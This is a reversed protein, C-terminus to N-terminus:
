IKKRELLGKNDLVKNRNKRWIINQNRNRRKIKRYVLWKNM